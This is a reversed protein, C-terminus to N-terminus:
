LTGPWFHRRTGREENGCAGPSGDAVRRGDPFGPLLSRHAEDGGRPEAHSSLGHRVPSQLAHFLCRLGGWVDALIERIEPRPNKEPEYPKDFRRASIGAM